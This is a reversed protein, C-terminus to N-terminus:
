FMFVRPHIPVAIWLQSIDQTRGISQSPLANEKINFRTLLPPWIPTGLTSGRRRDM